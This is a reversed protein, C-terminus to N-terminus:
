NVKIWQGTKYNLIENRLYSESEIKKLTLNQAEIKYIFLETFSSAFLKIELTDSKINFKGTHFDAHFREANPYFTIDGDAYFELRQIRYGYDMLLDQKIWSGIIKHNLYILNKQYSSKEIITYCSVSSLSIFAIVFYILFKIM